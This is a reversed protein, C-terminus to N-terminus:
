AKWIIDGDPERMFVWLANIRERERERERERCKDSFKGKV